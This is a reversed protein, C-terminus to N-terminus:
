DGISFERLETTSNTMKFSQSLYNGREASSSADPIMKRLESGIIKFKSSSSDQDKHKKVSESSIEHDSKKARAFLLLLLVWVPFTADTIWILIYRYPHIQLVFHVIAVGYLMVIAVIVLPVFGNRVFLLRRHFTLNQKHSVNPNQSRVHALLGLLEDIERPIVFLLVVGFTGLVMHTVEQFNNFEIENDQMLYIQATVTTAITAISLCVVALTLKRKTKEPSRCSVAYVPNLIVWILYVPAIYVLIIRFSVRMIATGWQERGEAYLAFTWLFIFLSGITAILTLNRAQEKTRLVQFAGFLMCLGSSIGFFGLYIHKVITSLFCNRYIDYVQDHEFGNECLCSTGNSDCFGQGCPVALQTENNILNVAAHCFSVSLPEM